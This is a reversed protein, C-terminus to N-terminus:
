VNDDGFRKLPGYPANLIIRTEVGNFVMSSTFAHGGTVANFISIRLALAERPRYGRSGTVGRHQLSIKSLSLKLRAAPQQAPM